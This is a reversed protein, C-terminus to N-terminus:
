QFIPFIMESNDEYLAVKDTSWSLLLLLSLNPIIIWKEGNFCIKHGMM